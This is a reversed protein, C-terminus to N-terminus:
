ADKKAGELKAVLAARDEQKVEAACTGYEHLIAFAPDRGVRMVCDKFVERIKMDDIEPTVEKDDKTSKVPASPSPRPETKVPDPDTLSIHRLLEAVRLCDDTGTLNFTVTVAM